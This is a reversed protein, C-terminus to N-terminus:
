QNQSNYWKIFEVVAQYVSEIKSLKGKQNDISVIAEDTRNDIIQVVSRSLIEVQYPWVTGKQPDLDAPEETEEIAEVVPMLADWSKAYPYEGHVSPHFEFGMFEAILENDTKM